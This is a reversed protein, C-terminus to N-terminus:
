SPWMCANLPSSVQIGDDSQVGVNSYMMSMMDPNHNALKVGSSSWQCSVLTTYFTSASIIQLFPLLSRLLMTLVSFLLSTGYGTSPYMSIRRRACSAIILEAEFYSLRRSTTVQPLLLPCRLM